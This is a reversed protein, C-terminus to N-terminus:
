NLRSPTARGRRGIQKTGCRACGGGLTRFLIGLVKEARRRRERRTKKGPVITGRYEGLLAFWERDGCAWEWIWLVEDAMEPPIPWGRPGKRERIQRGRSDGKAM